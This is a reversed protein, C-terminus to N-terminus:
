VDLEKLNELEKQILARTEEIRKEEDDIFRHIRYWDERRKYVNILAKGFWGGIFALGLVLKDQEEWAHKVRSSMPSSAISSIGRRGYQLRGQM